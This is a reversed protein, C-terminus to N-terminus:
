RRPLGPSCPLGAQWRARWRPFGSRAQKAQLEAQELFRVVNQQVEFVGTQRRNETVLYAVAALGILVTAM